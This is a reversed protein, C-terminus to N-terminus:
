DNSSRISSSIDFSFTLDALENRCNKPIKLVDQESNISIYDECNLSSFNAYNRIKVRGIPTITELLLLLKFSSNAYVKTNKFLDGAIKYLFHAGFGYSKNIQFPSIFEM